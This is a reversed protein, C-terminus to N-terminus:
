KSFSSKKAIFSGYGISKRKGLSFYDPFKINTSFEGTFAIMNVNKLNRSTIKLNTTVYIKQNKELWIKLGKLVELINNTIAKGLSYEGELYKKFNKENLPLYPTVFKYEYMTDQSYNIFENTIQIEKEIDFLINGDINLYEVEEFLKMNIDTAEEITMISLTNKILKYQLKPYSYDFGGSLHNHFISNERYKESLFGRLKELDRMNHKENRKFKLISYKM